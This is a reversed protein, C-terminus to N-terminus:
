FLVYHLSNNYSIFISSAPIKNNTWPVSYFQYSNPFQPISSIQVTNLVQASIWSYSFQSPHLDKCWEAAKQCGFLKYGSVPAGLDWGNGKEVVVAKSAWVVLWFMLHLDEEEDPTLGGSEM